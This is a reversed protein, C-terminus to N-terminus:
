YSNASGGIPAWPNMKVSLVVRSVEMWSGATAPQFDLFFRNGVSNMPFETDGYPPPNLLPLPLLADGYPTDLTDPLVTLNLSGEGVLLASGLVVVLNHLGARIQEAEDSKLFPYTTYRWPIAAGDDLFNGDVQQYIKATDTDGCYFVPETTDARTIFDAYAAEISWVSWRRGFQFSKLSGTYGQRISGESQLAGASMLEKYNLMLVVNPQTPNTNVPFQPMWQNPTPLPVGILIRRNNTDNKVWLTYGFEWNIKNWLPDIEPSIKQPKGGEFLYLGAEGAILAWGEGIDVGHISPTGVKNSVEHVTWGDPETIGNDDTEVFSKTKVVYLNDFLPFSSRVPQQNEVGVGLNGSVDDYAEFNNEYSGRLQNSLVPESLDFPETRDILIQGGNGLNNAYIRYVLDSPVASFFEATLLDGTVIQQTAELDAMPISFSGYVRNFSASFLDVVLSGAAGIPASATVRVGYETNTEFIPQLLYDQYASQTIMGSAGVIDSGTTNSILYANGFLPSASLSGGAGFTGDVTWGLPTIASAPNPLFGGDFSLNLMNQIKNQEGWAFIRSAFATFGLCSGLEIQEFNDSGETDISTGALLEADTFTFTAQTSVNDNIVTSTYTTKVGNDTITVPQPLYFFFAGNAGTFAVIRKTVNPPGLPIQTCVLSNAGETLFFTVPPSCGTIADNRTQFLVVAQRQGAGLNGPLEVTGGGGANGFIPDVITQGAYQQGPDFQFITGNVIGSGTEAAPAINASTIALSFTNVGASSIVADAINFIGNGNDTNTVTVQQGTTPATGTILNYTYSAVNGSLSTSTIELQAANPTATITWTSNWGSPSEGAVAIQSGVQVNPIAESTTLTALTSQYAASSPTHPFTDFLQTSPAAVCFTNFTGSFAGGGHGVTTQVSTVIFNGNPDAPTLDFGSLQVGFGQMINPDPPAGADGYYVTIVNGAQSNNGPGASWLLAVIKPPADGEVIAPQTISVIDYEGATASVACPAGPGVQSVRDVWQGNYQRPMDTGHVLDSLAIWERDDYTVSAAFSDPELATYIPTLVNPDNLVDEQWLIGTNDIALTLLEGDEQEFTKVWDFNEIGQPTFWVICEVGSLQVSQAGAAIASATIDFGFGPTNVLAPTLALGLDDSSGGISDTGDATGLVIPFSETSGIPQIALAVGASAKGNVIVEVGLVTSLPPISFGFTTSQLIDSFEPASINQSAFAAVITAYGLAVGQTWSATYTGTPQELAVAQVNQAGGNGIFLSSLGFPQSSIGSGSTAISVLVCEQAPSIPGASFNTNTVGGWESSASLGLLAGVGVMNGFWAQSNCTGSFVVNITFSGTAAVPTAMAGAFFALTWTHGSFDLGPYDVSGILTYVNGLTDTISSVTIPTGSPSALQMAVLATDGVAIGPAIVAVPLALTNAGFNSADGSNPNNTSFPVAAASLSVSAYTGIVNHIINDPDTWAAGSAVAVNVGLGTIEDEDSGEYVFVNELGARTKTSGVTFDMDCCIAAAGQPLDAPNLEAVLGTFVTLASDPGPGSIHM